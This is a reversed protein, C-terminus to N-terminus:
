PASRKQCSVPPDDLLESGHMSKILAEALAAREEEVAAQMPLM